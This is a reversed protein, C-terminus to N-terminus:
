SLRLSVLVLFVTWLPCFTPHVCCFHSEIMTMNEKETSPELDVRLDYKRVQPNKDQHSQIHLTKSVYFQTDQLRMWM